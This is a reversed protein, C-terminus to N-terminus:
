QEGIFSKFDVIYREHAGIGVSIGKENLVAVDFFLKNGDIFKLIAKCFVIEGLKVPYLHKVNVEASVTALGEHLFDQILDVCCKELYAIMAATSLLEFHSTGMQSALHNAEVEFKKELVTGEKVEKTFLNDTIKFVKPKM